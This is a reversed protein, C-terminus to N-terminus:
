EHKDCEKLIEQEKTLMTELLFLRKALNISAVSMATLGEFISEILETKTTDKIM